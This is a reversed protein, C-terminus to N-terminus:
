RGMKRMHFLRQPAKQAQADNKVASSVIMGLIAMIPRVTIVAALGAM